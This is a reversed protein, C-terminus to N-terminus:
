GWTRTRAASLITAVTVERFGGPIPVTLRALNQATPRLWTIDATQRFVAGGLDLAAVVRVPLYTGPSVWITEGPAARARSALRIADIGDVRQRGAVVLTGCTLASRLDRVVTAPLWTAAFRASTEGPEFLLPVVAAGSGCGSARSEPVTPRHHRAWARLAYSVVTYVSGTSLGADYAPRGDPLDTVSRSQDGYSWEEATTAGAPGSNTVTMQAIAAPQAATLASDIRGVVYATSTVPAQSGNQGHGPGAAVALVAAGAAVTAALGATLVPAMRRRRRIARRALGAPPRPHSRRHVPLSASALLAEKGAPLDIMTGVAGAAAEWTQALRADLEADDGAGPM